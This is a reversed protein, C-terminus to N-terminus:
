LRIKDTIVNLVQAIDLETTDIVVADDAKRLPAIDRESDQKDRAITMELLKKEDVTEGKARLQRARRGSREQPRADLYFKYEAGPFVITGTDRGEAVINGRRGLEQQLRTLKNRVAPIASVSSALMSMEPSRILESVDENNLLVGVDETEHKAPLLDIDIHELATEIASSDDLDIRHKKIYWAVARYMAGTDLYTFGFRAAVKRSITSKGVGSPGDIAITVTKKDSM